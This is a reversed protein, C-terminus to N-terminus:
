AYWKPMNEYIVIGEHYGLEILVRCLLEDARAHNDEIDIGHYKTTTGAIEKMLLAFEEKTM